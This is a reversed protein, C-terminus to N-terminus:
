SGKGLAVGKKCTNKKMQWEDHDEPKHAVHAGKGEYHKPCWHLVRGHKKMADGVHETRCSEVRSFLNENNNNNRCNKRNRFQNGNRNMAHANSLISLMQTLLAIFKSDQDEQQSKTSRKKTKLKTINDCKKTCARVLADVNDELEDEEWLNRKKKIFDLFDEDESTEMANFVKLM